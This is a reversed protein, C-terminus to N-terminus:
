RHGTVTVVTWDAVDDGVCSGSTSNAFARIAFSTNAPDAEARADRLAGTYRRMATVRSGLCHTRGLSGSAVSGAHSVRRRLLGLDPGM